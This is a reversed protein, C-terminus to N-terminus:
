KRDSNRSKQVFNSTLLNAFPICTCLLLFSAFSLHLLQTLKQVSGGGFKSARLHRQPTWRKWLSKCDNCTGFHTFQHVLWFFWRHFIEVEYSRNVTLHLHKTTTTTLTWGSRHMPATFDLLMNWLHNWLDKWWSPLHQAKPKEELDSGKLIWITWFILFWFM